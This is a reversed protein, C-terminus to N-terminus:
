LPRPLIGVRDIRQRQYLPQPLLGVGEIVAVAVAEARQQTVGLM